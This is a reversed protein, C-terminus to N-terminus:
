NFISKFVDYIFGDQIKPKIFSSPDFLRFAYVLIMLTIISKLIFNKTKNSYTNWKFSLYFVVIPLLFLPHYHFAQMIDLHFLSFYARSMGCTPCPIGTFFYIPCGIRTTKLIILYLAFGIILPLQKKFYTFM